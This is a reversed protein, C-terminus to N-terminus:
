ATAKRPSKTANVAITFLLNFSGAPAQTIAHHAAERAAPRTAGINVLASILDAEMKRAAETEAKLAPNVWVLTKGELTRGRAGKSAARTNVRTRPKKELREAFAILLRGASHIRGASSLAAAIAAAATVIGAAFGIAVPRGAAVYAAATITLVGAFYVLATNM